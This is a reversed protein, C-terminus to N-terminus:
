LSCLSAGGDIIINQGTISKNKTLLYLCMEAIQDAEVFGLPIEKKLYEIREATNNQRTMNTDVFGPSVMNVKINRSTMELAFNKAAALLAHKSM